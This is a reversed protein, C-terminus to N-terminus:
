DDQPLNFNVTKTSTKGELERRVRRFMPSGPPMSNKELKPVLEDKVHTLLNTNKMTRGM